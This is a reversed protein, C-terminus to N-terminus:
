KTVKFLSLFSKLPLHKKEAFYRAAALRSFALTSSIAEQSSDTHSYFSFRKM